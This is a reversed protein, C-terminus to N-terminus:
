GGLPVPDAECRFGITGGFSPIHGIYLYDLDVDGGSYHAGGVKGGVAEGDREIVVRGSLGDAAHDIRMPLLDQAAPVLHDDPGTKPVLYGRGAATCSEPAASRLRVSLYGEPDRTLSVFDTCMARVWWGDLGTESDIKLFDGERTLSWGEAARAAIFGDADATLELDVWEWYNGIQDYVGFVSVCEPLSGSPVPDPWVGPSGPVDLACQGDPASDGWPYATGGEGLEGDGADRWPQLRVLRMTGHEVGNEDVVPTRACAEMATPLDVNGSPLQGAEASALGDDTIWAEFPQICYVPEGADPVPVLGVGCGLPGTATGDDGDTGDGADGETGGDDAGADGGTGDDAAAGSDHPDDAPGATTAPAAASKDDDGPAACAWLLLLTVM